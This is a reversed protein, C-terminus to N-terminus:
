VLKRFNNFNHINNLFAAKAVLEQGQYINAASIGGLLGNNELKLKTWRM